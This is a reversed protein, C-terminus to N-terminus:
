GRLRHAAFTVAHPVGAPEGQAALAGPIVEAPAPHWPLDALYAAHASLSAVAKDVAEPSVELFHTPRTAYLLLWSVGWPPLDEERALGPFVWRNDADRVADITALGAARHDAHDLGWEVFVQGAGCVVADPRFTRIERAIARRLDLGYELTGDPFGLITLREVGVVECAARQERARLPGAAEPARQMGAEGATLLLYAVEVGRMTWMSVAASLGYEVDDPHAVVVLVRSFAADDLPQLVAGPTQTMRSPYTATM